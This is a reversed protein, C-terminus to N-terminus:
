NKNISYNNHGNNFILEKRTKIYYFFNHQTKLSLDIKSQYEKLREKDEESM